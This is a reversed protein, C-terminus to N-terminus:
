FILFSVRAPPGVICDSVFGEDAKRKADGSEGGGFYPSRCSERRPGFSDDGRLLVSRDGDGQILSAALAGVANSKFM